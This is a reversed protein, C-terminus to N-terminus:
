SKKEFFKTLFKLLVTLEGLPTRLFAGALFANKICKRIESRM